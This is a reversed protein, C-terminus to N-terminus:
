QMVITLSLAWVKGAPLDLQANGAQVGDGAHITAGALSVPDGDQADTCESGSTGCVNPTGDVKAFIAAENCM